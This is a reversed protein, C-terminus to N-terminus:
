VTRAGRGRTRWVAFGLACAGMFAAYFPPEPVASEASQYDATVQASTFASTYIEVNDLLGTYSNGSVDKGVFFQDTTFRSLSGTSTSQAEEAGNLYLTSTHASADWTATVYTWTGTTVNSTSIITRDPNGIGLAVKSGLLSLGWDNTQGPLEGDVLGNGQYWQTGGNGATTTNMWFAITFGDVIPSASAQLSSSGDFIAATGGNIGSGFTVAHSGVNSFTISSTGSDALRNGSNDFTLGIAPTQGHLVPALLVSAVAAARLLSSTM